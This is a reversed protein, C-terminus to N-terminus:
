RHPETPPSVTPLADLPHSVTFRALQQKVLPWDPALQLAKNYDLWADKEDDLYEHAVARNYYAKEPEKVNLILANDIDSLSEKFQRLGIRAAARNVYAEALDSKYRIATNFDALAEAYRKGHLKIIGRNVYTGARDLPVLQETEISQTCVQEDRFSSSGGQAATSCASALGGGWVDVAQAGAPGALALLGTAILAASGRM